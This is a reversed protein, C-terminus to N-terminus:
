SAAAAEQESAEQDPPTSPFSNKKKAGSIFSNLEATGKTTEESMM